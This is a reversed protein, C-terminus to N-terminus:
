SVKEVQKKLIRYVNSGDTVKYAKLGKYISVGKITYEDIVEYEGAKLIFNNKRYKGTKTTVNIGIIKIDKTLRVKKRESKENTTKQRDM